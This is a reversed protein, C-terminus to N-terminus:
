KYIDSRQSETLQDAFLEDLSIGFAEAIKMANSVLCDNRKQIGELTRKPLGTTNSLSQMTYGKKEKYYKFLM